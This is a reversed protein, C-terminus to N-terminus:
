EDYKSDGRSEMHQFVMPQQGARRGHTPPVDVGASRSLIIFEDGDPDLVEVSRLVDM